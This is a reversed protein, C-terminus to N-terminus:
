MSVRLSYSGRLRNLSMSGVFPRQCETRLQKPRKGHMRDGLYGYRVEIVCAEAYKSLVEGAAEIGINQDLGDGEWQGVKPYSYCAPCKMQCAVRFYHRHGINLM